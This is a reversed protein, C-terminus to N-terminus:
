NTNNTNGLGLRGTSGDTGWCYLEGTTNVACTHDNALGIQVWNMANGVKTPTNTNNTNGLGLRGTSGDTGWCYLEGTTNVACTHNNGTNVQTWNDSTGVKTPTTRGDTDTLGLRGNSGSGWCYLENDASIACTHVRQTSIQRVLGLPKSAVMFIVTADDEGTTSTARVTFTQEGIETPTGSIECARGDTAAEITLGALTTVPNDSNATDIFKCDTIDAGDSANEVLVPEALLTEATATAAVSEDPLNPPQNVNLEYTASDSKHTDTPVSTVTIITTGGGILTIAGTNADITAVMENSSTWTFTDTNSSNVFPINAAPTDGFDVDIMAQPFGVVGTVRAYVTLEFVASMGETTTARIRLLTAGGSNPTGNVTCTNTAVNTALTLGNLTYTNSGASVENLATTGTPELLVCSGATLTAESNSNTIITEPIAENLTGDVEAPTATLMALEPGRITYIVSADVMGGGASTARITYTKMVT